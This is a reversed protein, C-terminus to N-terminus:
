CCSKTSNRDAENTLDIDYRLLMGGWSYLVLIRAFVWWGFLIFLLLTNLWNFLLGVGTWFNM